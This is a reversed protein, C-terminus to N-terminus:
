RFLAKIPSDAPKDTTTTTTSVTGLDGIKDLTDTQYVGFLIKNRSMYDEVSRASIVEGISAKFYFPQESSHYTVYPAIKHAGPMYAFSKQGKFLVKTPQYNTSALVEQADARSQVQSKPRMAAALVELVWQNSNSEETNRWNAAANYFRSNIKYALEEDFVAQMLREQLAPSPVLFRAKLEYPNDTFFNFTGEDWLYPVNIDRQQIVEFETMESPAKGLMCPRLMHRTHWMPAEGNEPPFEPHNRVLFAIHSFDMKRIPDKFKSEITSKLRNFDLSRGEVDSFSNPDVIAARYINELTLPSLGQVDRLVVQERMDQGARAIIIIQMRSKATAEYEETIQGLALDTEQALRAADAQVDLSPSAVKCEGAIASQLKLLSIFLFATQFLISTFKM